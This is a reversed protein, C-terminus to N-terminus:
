RRSSADEQSEWDGADDDAVWRLAFRLDSFRSAAIQLWPIPPADATLFEYLIRNATSDEAVRVDEPEWKTGWEGRRWENLDSASATDPPSGLQAFRLASTRDPSLVAEAFRLVGESPGTVTLKNQVWNPM